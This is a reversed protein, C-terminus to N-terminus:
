LLVVRGHGLDPSRRYAQCDQDLQRESTLQEWCARFRGRAPRNPTSHHVIVIGKGWRDLIGSLESLPRLRRNRPDSLQGFRGRAKWRNTIVGALKQFPCPLRNGPGLVQNFCNASKYSGAISPDSSVIRACYATGSSRVRKSCLIWSALRANILSLFRHLPHFGEPLFGIGAHHM